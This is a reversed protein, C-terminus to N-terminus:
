EASNHGEKIVHQLICLQILFPFILILAFVASLIHAKLMSIPLNQDMWRLAIAKAVSWCTLLSIYCTMILWHFARESLRNIM